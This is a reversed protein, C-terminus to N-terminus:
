RKGYMEREREFILCTDKEGIIAHPFRNKFDLLEAM